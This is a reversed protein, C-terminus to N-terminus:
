HNGYCADVCAFLCRTYEEYSSFPADQKESSFFRSIDM